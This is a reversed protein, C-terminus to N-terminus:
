LNFALSHPLRHNVIQDLEDELMPFPALSGIDDVIAQEDPALDVDGTAHTVYLQPYAPTLNMATVEYGWQQFQDGKLDVQGKPIISVYPFYFNNQVKRSVAGENYSIFRLAGMAATPTVEMSVQGSASAQFFVEIAAGNPINPAGELIEIRGHGEEVRYNDQAPIQVGERRVTVYAVNRLGLMERTKGLQYFRGQLVNLTESFENHAVGTKRENSGGFWMAVNDVDVNDTMFTVKNTESIVPSDIRNKRGGYATFRDLRELSREIRFSPTNGLYREGEGLKSGKPFRDFYVEGRGLM